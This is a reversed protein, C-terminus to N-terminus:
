CNRRGEHHSYEKDQTIELCYTPYGPGALDNIQSTRLM